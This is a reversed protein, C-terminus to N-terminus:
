SIISFMVTCSIITIGPVAVNKLNDLMDQQFSKSRYHPLSWLKFILSLSYLQVKGWKDYKHQYNNNNSDNNIDNDLTHNISTSQTSYFLSDDSGNIISDNFDYINTNRYGKSFFIFSLLIYIYYVTIKNLLIIQKILSVINSHFLVDHSLNM